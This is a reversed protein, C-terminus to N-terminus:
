SSKIPFHSMVYEALATITLAPNVGLNVPVNAGDVVYLNPYGHIQGKFDVVGQEPTEGMIAGGLIHATTPIDFLAETWAGLPQGNIKEGIRRAVENAIPIYTPIRQGEWEQPITTNLSKNGARWWRSKFELKLYNDVTQMVLLIPTRAGFGFPWMSKIFAGPNDVITKGFHLARPKGGGGDTMLSSILGILDSGKNFRVIEIHTDKDPYIGSNISIHNSFDAKKDHAKVGIIAESNTRVYNGLQSSLKPLLGYAKCQMLLKVSGLVGGSFIVGSAHYRQRPKKLGTAQKTIVEYGSDIPRVGIVETEPIIDAGFKKEALYLYNKDLTNKGGDRCGIICAGCFTCGTREPGDGNFFPDPVTKGREGFFVGVDNIHFTDKGRVEKGVQRLVEDIEGVSPSPVVGLMQKASEYFPALKSKWEGPGWEPKKFVEDPPVLLQNAYLLSGGGVGTGHLVLAHRLLSLNWLGYLGIEPRWISKRINWNTHPFDQPYYRKGKELVAVHYGKESLRLASVSGGFGSGIVVYDYKQM